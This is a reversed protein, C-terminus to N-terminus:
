AMGEQEIIARLQKRGRALRAKVTNEKAGTQLAIERVSFEGYYFLTIAERYRYELRQVADSLREGQWELLFREETAPEFQDEGAGSWAEDMRAFPLLMRWSWTRQRMRCRNIAIRTLWSKLQDPDRLQEIKQFASIFTDQVAEEAAQRDKLLLYSTRLLYDGYQKMLLRLAAEDGKKLQQM